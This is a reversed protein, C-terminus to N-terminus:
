YEKRIGFEASEIWEEPRNVLLVIDELIQFHKEEEGILFEFLKKEGENKAESLFNKYLEISQRENELAVRYVDLQTPIKKVENNFEEVSTFLNKYNSLIDSSELNYSLENVKDQLIKAHNIEDEALAIFVTGLFNDENLLAQDRYFKEGDFERKIAFDLSNM